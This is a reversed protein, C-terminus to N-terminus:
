RMEEFKVDLIEAKTITSPFTPWEIIVKRGLDVGKSKWTGSFINGDQIVFQTLVFSLLKSLEWGHKEAMTEWAEMIERSLIVSVVNNESM